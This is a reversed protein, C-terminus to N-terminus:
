WFSVIFYSTEDPILIKESLGKSSQRIINYREPLSYLKQQNNNIKNDGIDLSAVYQPRLHNLKVCATNLKWWADLIYHMSEGTNYSAQM